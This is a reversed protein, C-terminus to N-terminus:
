ITEQILIPIRTKVKLHGELDFGLDGYPPGLHYCSKYLDNEQCRPPQKYKKSVWYLGKKPVSIGCYNEIKTRLVILCILYWM